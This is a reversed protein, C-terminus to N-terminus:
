NKQGPVADAVFLVGLLFFNTPYSIGLFVSTGIHFFLLGIGAWPRFRAIFICPLCFLQLCLASLALIPSLISQHFIFRKFLPDAGARIIESALHYKLGDASLFNPEGAAFQVVFGVLKWFGSLFYFMLVLAQASWWGNLYILKEVRKTARNNKFDITPLFALVVSSWLWFQWLHTLGGESNALANFLFFFISFFIRFIQFKPRMAAAFSFLMALATIILCVTLHNAGTLFNLPFLYVPKLQETQATLKSLGYINLLAFLTIYYVRLLVVTKRFNQNLKEFIM